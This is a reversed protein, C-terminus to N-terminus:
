VVILPRVLRGGDSNVSVCKRVSDTHISVFENLRGNRRLRRVDRTLQAHDRHLGVVSGNLFVLFNSYYDAPTFHRLDEVGLAILVGLVGQDPLDNTIHALLALTKVLGCSEGDPTDSPCIM